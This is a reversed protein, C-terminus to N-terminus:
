PSAAICYEEAHNSFILYHPSCQLSTSIHIELRQEIGNAGTKMVVLVDDAGPLGKCHLQGFSPVQDLIWQMTSPLELCVCVFAAVPLTGLLIRCKRLLMKSNVM